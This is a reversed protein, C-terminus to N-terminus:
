ESEDETSEEEDSPSDLEMFHGGDSSSSEEESESSSMGLLRELGGTLVSKFDKGKTRTDMRGERYDNGGELEIVKQIHRPIRDIWARIKEQTLESWGIKWIGELHTKLEWNEKEQSKRKLHPWAPEIANLDPSNGPWDLRKVRWEKILVQNAQHIHPSAGDEQLILGYEECHPLLLPELVNKRYRWWDIGGKGKERVWKGNKKNFTWKPVKGPTKGPRKLNVRRLGNAVEWESKCKGERQKNMEELERTAQEKEKTTELDSWIFCPGKTDYSFCGWFMFTSYGAWRTKRCTPDNVEQPQRWVKDGGRRHGLVVSTEDSFCVKAWNINQHNICWELRREKQAQSLGPKATRKVKKFGNKHLIKRISEKGVVGGTGEALQSCNYSRTAKSQRVYSIVQEELQPTIKPPRGSRPKAELFEDKLQTGPIWGREKAQSFVRAVHRENCGVIKAIQTNSLVGVEKYIVIQAKTSIDLESM